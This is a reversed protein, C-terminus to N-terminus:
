ESRLIDWRNNIQANLTKYDNEMKVRLSKLIEIEANIQTRMENSVEYATRKVLAQADLTTAKISAELTRLEDCAILVSRCDNFIANTTSSAALNVIKRIEDKLDELKSLNVTIVKQKDKLAEYMPLWEKMIEDRVQLAATSVAKDALAQYSAIKGNLESQSVSNIESLYQRTNTVYTRLEEMLVQARSLTKNAEELVVAPDKDVEKTSADSYIIVQKKDDNLSSVDAENFCVELGSPVAVSFYISGNAIVYDEGQIAQIGKGNPFKLIVVNGDYGPPLPFRKTVGNGICM